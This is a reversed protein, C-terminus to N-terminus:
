FARFMLKVPFKCVTANESRNCSKEAPLFVPVTVMTRPFMRLSITKRSPLMM